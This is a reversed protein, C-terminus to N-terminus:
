NMNGAEHKIKKDASQGVKKQAKETSVRKYKIQGHSGSYLLAQTAVQTERMNRHSRESAKTKKQSSADGRRKDLQGVARQGHKSM